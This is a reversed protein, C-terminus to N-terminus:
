GLGAMGEFWRVVAAVKRVCPESDGLRLDPRLRSDQLTHPMTRYCITVKSGLHPSASLAVTTGPEYTAMVGEPLFLLHAGCIDVKRVKGVKFIFLM